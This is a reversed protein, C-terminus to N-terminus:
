KNKEKPIELMEGLKKNYKEPVIPLFGSNPYFTLEGCYIKGEINYFDVRLFIHGKSLIEALQIMRDYNKPKRITQGIEKIDTRKFPAKKTLDIEYFGAERQTSHAKGKAIFIYKAKENFCFFKYDILEKESLFKEIIIRPKVNKYPWERGNYFYNKKLSKNIKKKTQKMNLKKKDKCIVVGGSDHTCKIVFQNPLKDFNIDEFKDYVGLTPIIYEEGILDAVYKKAEYKDVMKTYEPKRDHLKLWQIKENFTQPNDLNLKKKTLIPYYMKLFTEDKLLFLTHTIRMVKIIIKYLLYM